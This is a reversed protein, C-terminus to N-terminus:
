KGVDPWLKRYNLRLKQKLGDRETALARYTQYDPGSSEASSMTGDM